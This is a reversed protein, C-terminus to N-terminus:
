EAYIQDYLTHNILKPEARYTTDTHQEAAKEIRGEIRECSCFAFVAFMLPILAQKNLVIRNNKRGFACILTVTLMLIGLVSNM